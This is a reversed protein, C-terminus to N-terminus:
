CSIVLLSGYVDIVCNCLMTLPDDESGNVLVKQAYKPAFRKDSYIRLKRENGNLEVARAEIAMATNDEYFVEIQM